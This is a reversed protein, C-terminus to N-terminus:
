SNVWGGFKASPENAATTQVSQHRCQSMRQMPDKNQGAWDAGRRPQHQSRDPSLYRHAAHRWRAADSWRRSDDLCLSDESSGSSSPERFFHGATFM